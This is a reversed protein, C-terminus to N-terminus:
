ILILLSPTLYFPESFFTLFTLFFHSQLSASLTPVLATSWDIGVEMGVKGKRLPFWSVEAFTM